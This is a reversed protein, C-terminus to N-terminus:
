IKMLGAGVIFPEVPINSIRLRSVVMRAGTHMMM